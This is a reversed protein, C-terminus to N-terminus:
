KETPEKWDDPIWYILPEYNPLPEDSIFLKIGKLKKTGWGTKVQSPDNNGYLEISQLFFAMREPTAEGEMWYIAPQEDSPAHFVVERITM